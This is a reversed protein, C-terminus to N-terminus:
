HTDFKGSTIDDLISEHQQRIMRDIKAKLDPSDLHQIYFTKKPALAKGSKYIISEVCNYPSGMDQTQVLFIVGGHEIKSNLGAM